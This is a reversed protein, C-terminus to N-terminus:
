LKYRYIFNLENTGWLRGGADVQIDMMGFTSEVKVFSSGNWKYVPHGGTINETSLLYYKGGGAAIKGKFVSNVALRTWTGGSNGPSLKFVEGNSNLGLLDGNNDVDMDTLGGPVATWTTGGAFKYIMHGGAVQVSGFVFVAGNAGAAIKRYDSGNKPYVDPQGMSIWTGGNPDIATPNRFIAGQDNTGVIETNGIIDLDLLGAPVIASTSSQFRRLALGGAPQPSYTPDLAWGSNSGTIGTFAPVSGAGGIYTWDGGSTVKAATPSQADAPDSSAIGAGDNFCGTFVAAGTLLIAPFLIRIKSM